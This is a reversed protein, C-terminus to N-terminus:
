TPTSTWPAFADIDSVVDVVAPKDAALAQELANQIDSAREVRIAFCGLNSALRSFDVDDYVWLEKPNGNPFERYAVDVGPKDQNLSRNNNIVTVTNIGCRVATELEALHYWFGGDGTLAVIKRGEAALAAGIAMTIGQGIGGGLAHVGDEAFRDIHPTTQRHYGYCSMHDARLSDIGFLIVNTKKAPM